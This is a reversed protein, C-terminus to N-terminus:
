RGLKASELLTILEKRRAADPTVIYHTLDWGYKKSRVHVDAGRQILLAAAGVQGANVARALPTDGSADTSELLSATHTLFLEILSTRGGIAAIHLANLGAKQGAKPSAGAKLLLECMSKDGRTAALLLPTYGFGDPQEILKENKVLLDATTILGRDAARHLANHGHNNIATPDAGAELLRKALNEAKNGIAWHLPRNGSLDAANLHERRILLEVTAENKSAIALHVPLQGLKNVASVNAGAKVLLECVDRQGGAAALHLATDGDEDKATVLDRNAEILAAVTKVDGETAAEFLAKRGGAVDVEMASGGLLGKVPSGCRSVVVRVGSPVNVEVQTFPVRPVGAPGGCCDVDMPAPSMSRTVAASM